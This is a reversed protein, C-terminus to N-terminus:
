KRATDILANFLQQQVRNFPASLEPHWQVGILFRSRDSLEVGEICGDNQAVASVKLKNVCAAAQHHISNVKIENQGIIAHLRTNPVIHTKHGALRCISSAHRRLQAPNPDHAQLMGGYYVTMLQAGRCICLAPLKRTELLRLAEIELRDRAPNHLGAASPTGKYLAPDIDEGGTLIVGDLRDLIEPLRRLDAPAITVSSGGARWIALDYPLRLYQMRYPWRNSVLVGIRPGRNKNSFRLWMILPLLLIVLPLGLFAALLLLYSEFKKM